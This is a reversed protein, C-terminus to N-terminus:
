RFLGLVNSTILKTVHQKKPPDEVLTYHINGPGVSEKPLRRDGFPHIFHTPEKNTNSVEFTGWHNMQVKDLILYEQTAIADWVHRDHTLTEPTVVRENGKFVPSYVHFFMSPYNREEFYKSVNPYVGM